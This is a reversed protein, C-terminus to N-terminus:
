QMLLLNRIRYRNHITLDCRKEYELKIVNTIDQLKRTSKIPLNFMENIILLTSLIDVEDYHIVAQKIALFCAHQYKKLYLTNKLIKEALFPFKIKLIDTSNNGANDIIEKSINSIGTNLIITLYTAHMKQDSYTFEITEFYKEILLNLMKLNNTHEIIIDKPYKNLSIMVAYLFKPLITNLLNSDENYYQTKNFHLLAIIAKLADHMFIIGASSSISKFYLVIIKCCIKTSLQCEKIMSNCVNFVIKLINIPFQHKEHEEMTPIRPIVREEVWSLINQLCESVDYVDIKLLIYIISLYDKFLGILVQEKMVVNSLENSCIMRNEVHYQIVRLDKWVNVLDKHYAILLKEQFDINLLHKLIGVTLVLTQEQEKIILDNSNEQNYEVNTFKTILDKLLTFVIDMKEWKMLTYLITILMENSVNRNSLQKAITECINNANSMMTVPVFSLLFLTSENLSLKQVRYSCLIQPLISTFVRRLDRGEEKDFYENTVNKKNVYLIIAVVELLINISECTDIEKKVIDKTSNGNHSKDNNRKFRKSCKNNTEDDTLLCSAQREITLLIINILRFANDWNVIDKSHFFFKRTATINKTGINIIEETADDNNLHDLQIRLCLLKILEELLKSENTDEICKLLTTLAVSDWISIGIQNQLYILLKIFCKIVDIDAYYIQNVFNNLFDKVSAHSHKNSVMLKIGNLISIKIESSFKSKMHYSLINLWNKIIDAPICKWHSELIKSTGNIAILCVQQNSDKLLQSIAKTYQKMDNENETLHKSKVSYIVFLIEAANCRVCSGSAKLHEWLLSNWHDHLMLKIANSKYRHLADVFILLNTGLKVRGTSDRRSRLCHFIINKFCKEIILKKTKNTANLWAKAYLNAYGKIVDSEGIELITKVNNHIGMVFEEGLAFLKLLIVTGEPVSMVVASRSLEVLMQIDENRKILYLASRIKYLRKIHQSSTKSSETLHKIANMIVKEKWIMNSKWWNELLYSIEDKVKTDKIEPLIVSHLIIVIELLVNPFFTKHMVTELAMAAIAQILKLAQQKEKSNENDSQLISLKQAKLLIVKVHYWLECLEEESLIKINRVDSKMKDCITSIDCGKTKLIRFLIKDHIIVRQCSM